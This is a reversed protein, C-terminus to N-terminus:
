GQERKFPANAKRDKVRVRLDKVMDYEGPGGKGRIDNSAVHQLADVHARLIEDFYADDEVNHLYDLLNDCIITVLHYGFSGAVGRMDSLKRLVSQWWDDKPAYVRPKNRALRSLEAIDQTLQQLYDGRMETLAEQGRKIAESASIGGPKQLREKLSPRRKNNQEPKASSM